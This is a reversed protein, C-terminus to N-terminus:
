CSVMAHTKRIGHHGVHDNHYCGIIHAFEELQAVLRYHSSAAHKTKGGARTTPTSGGSKLRHVPVALRARPDSHNSYRETTLFFESRKVWRRLQAPVVGGLLTDMIKTYVTARIVGGGIRQKDKPWTEDLYQQFIALAIANRLLPNDHYPTLPPQPSFPMCTDPTPPPTPFENFPTLTSTPLPPQQDYGTCHNEPVFPSLPVDLGHQLNIEKNNGAHLDVPTIQHLTDNSVSPASCSRPFLYSYLIDSDPSQSTDHEILESTSYSPSLLALPAESGTWTTETSEALSITIKPAADCISALASLGEASM